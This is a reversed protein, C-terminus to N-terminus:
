NNKEVVLCNNFYNFDFRSVFYNFFINVEEVCHVFNSYSNDCNYLTKGNNYVSFFLMGYSFMDGSQEVKSSLGYEPAL